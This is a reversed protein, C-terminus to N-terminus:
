AIWGGGALWAMLGGLAGTALAVSALVAVYALRKPRTGGGGGTNTSGSGSGSGNGSGTGAGSGSSQTNGAKSM